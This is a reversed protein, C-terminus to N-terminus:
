QKTRSAYENIIRALDTESHTRQVKKDFLIEEMTLPQEYYIDNAKDDPTIGGGKISVGGYFGQRDDYVLVAARPNVTGQAGGTQDGATGRAEGGFNFHPDLLGRTANTNMLVIVLFSEEGGAQFGLSAENADVFGAPSWRDAESDRVLVVGGGGQYAFVFGAKTRDLLIIGRANKLVDAPVCKDPKQQMEEFKSTLTLIRNDLEVKDAARAGFACGLLALGLIIKKM